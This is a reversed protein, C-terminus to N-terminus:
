LAPQCIGLRASLMALVFGSCSPEGHIMAREAVLKGKADAERHRLAAVQEAPDTAVVHAVSGALLEGLADDLM